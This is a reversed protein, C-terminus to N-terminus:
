RPAAAALLLKRFAATTAAVAGADVCRADDGEVHHFRHVGFIGAVPTYGAAIIATLEGARLLRALTMGRDRIAASLAGAFPTTAQGQLIAEDTM